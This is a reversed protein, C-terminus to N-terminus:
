SGAPVGISETGPTFCFNNELRTGCSNLENCSGGCGSRDCFTVQSTASLCNTDPAAICTGGAVTKVTCPGTCITSSQTSCFTVTVSLAARSSLAAFPDGVLTVEDPPLASVWAKMEELSMIGGNNTPAPVAGAFVAAAAVTFAVLSNFHM